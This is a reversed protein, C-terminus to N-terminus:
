CIKVFEVSSYQPGNDAVLIQLIGHRSLIYKLAEIVKASYSARLKIVGSYKSFYDTIIIYTDEKPLKKALSSRVITNANITGASTDLKVCM